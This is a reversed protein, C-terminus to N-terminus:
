YNLDYRENCDAAAMFDAARALCQAAAARTSADKKELDARCSGSVQASNVRAAGMAARADNMVRVVNECAKTLDPGPAVKPPEPSPRKAKAAPTAPQAAGSKEGKCGEAVVGLSCALLLSLCSRGISRRMEM